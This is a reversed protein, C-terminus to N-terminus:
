LMKLVLRSSLAPAWIEPCFLSVMWATLASEFSVSCTSAVSTWSAMEYPNYNGELVEPDGPRNCDAYDGDEVDGSDVASQLPYLCSRMTKTPKATTAVRSTTTSVNTLSSAAGATCCLWVLVGLRALFLM